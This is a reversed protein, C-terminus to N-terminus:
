IAAPELAAHGPLVKLAVHRGLPEQVAEYVVGMAGRGVIRLVRFEGFRAPPEALPPAQSGLMRLLPFGDRILDAVAPYRATYEDASPSEGRKLRDVYEDALRGFLVEREATADTM